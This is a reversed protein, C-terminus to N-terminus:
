EPTILLGLIAIIALVVLATGVFGVEIQTNADM